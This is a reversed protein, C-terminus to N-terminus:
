GPLYREFIWGISFCCISFVLMWLMPGSTIQGSLELLVALAPLGLGVLQGIRGIVRM